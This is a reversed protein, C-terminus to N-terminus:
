ISIDCFKTMDIEPKRLKYLAKQRGDHMYFIGASVTPLLGQTKPLEWDYHLLLYIVVLKIEYTALFRGPCAHTGHGFFTLDTGTTVSQHKNESGPEDRARLFRYGDFKEPDPYLEPNVAPMPYVMMYAGKPIVTGDKFKLDEQTLRPMNAASAPNKRMSERLVSDLKRMKFLATKDMKGTEKLVEVCEDRLDQIYGPHALLDRMLGIATRTTTHIAAMALSIEAVALDFKTDEKGKMSAIFWDVSDLVRRRPGGHKRMEEMRRDVEPRILARAQNVEARIKRCEPLFWHAIPRIFPPLANLRQVASHVDKVYSTNLYQWDPNDMFKTGLFIKTTLRSIIPLFMSQVDIETWDNPHALVKDLTNPLEEVMPTITLALVQALEKRVADQFISSSNSTGFPEFGPYTAYFDKHVFASFDCAPDSKMEDIYKPSILLKPGSQSFDDIRFPQGNYTELGKRMFSEASKTFEAQPKGNNIIPYKRLRWSLWLKNAWEHALFSVLLIVGTCLGKVYWDASKVTDFM